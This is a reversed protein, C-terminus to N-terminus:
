AKGKRSSVAIQRADANSRSDRDAILPPVEGRREKDGSWVVEYAPKPKAADLCTPCKVQENHQPVFLKLCHRNQCRRPQGLV